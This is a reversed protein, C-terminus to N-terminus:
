RGGEVALLARDLALSLSLEWTGCPPILLCLFYYKVFADFFSLNM